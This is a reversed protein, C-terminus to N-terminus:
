LGSWARSISGPATPPQDGAPFTQHAPPTTPWPCSPATERAHARSDPPAAPSSSPSTSSPLKLNRAPARPLSNVAPSVSSVSFFPNPKEADSRCGLIALPPCQPGGRQRPLLVTSRAARVLTRAPYFFSPRKRCLQLRARAFRPEGVTARLLCLSGLSIRFLDASEKGPSFGRLM